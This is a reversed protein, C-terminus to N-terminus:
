QTWSDPVRENRFTVSETFTDVDNTGYFHGMLNTFLTLHTTLSITVTDGPLGGASASGNTSVSSGGEGSTILIKSLDLGPAAKQAVAVISALRSQNQAPNNPNPLSQGTVAFRGAQRVANELTVQVWYLHGMDIIGFMLLFFLPLVVAFEVLGEARTGKFKRRVRSYFKRMSHSKKM